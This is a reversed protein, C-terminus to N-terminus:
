SRRKKLDETYTVRKLFHSVCTSWKIINTIRVTNFTVVTTGVICILQNRWKRWLLLFWIFLSYELLSTRRMEFPYLYGVTGLFTVKPACEIFQVSNFGESWKGLFVVKFRQETSGCTQVPSALPHSCSKTGGCFGQWSTCPQMYIANFKAPWPSARSKHQIDAFLIFHLNCKWNQSKEWLEASIGEDGMWWLLVANTRLGLM